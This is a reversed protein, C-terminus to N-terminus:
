VPYILQILVQAQMHQKAFTAKPYFKGFVDM